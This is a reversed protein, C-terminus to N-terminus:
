FAYASTYARSRVVPVTPNTDRRDAADSDGPPLAVQTLWVGSPRNTTKVSVPLLRTGPCTSVSGPVWSTNRSSRAVLVVTRTLWVAPAGAVPAFLPLPVGTM